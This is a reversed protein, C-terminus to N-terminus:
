SFFISLFVAICVVNTVGAVVVDENVICKTLTGNFYNIYM